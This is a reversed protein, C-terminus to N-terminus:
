PLVLNIEHNCNLFKIIANQSVVTHNFDVRIDRQSILHGPRMGLLRMWFVWQRIAAFLMILWGMDGYYASMLSAAKPVQKVWRIVGQGIQQEFRWHVQWRLIELSTSPLLWYYSWNNSFKRWYKRICKYNLTSFKAKIVSENSTIMEQHCSSLWLSFKLKETLFSKCKQKKNKLFDMWKRERESLWISVM